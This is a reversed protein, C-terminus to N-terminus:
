SKTDTYGYSGHIYEGVLHGNWPKYIPSVVQSSPHEELHNNSHLLGVLRSVDCNVFDLHWLLCCNSDCGRSYLYEKTLLSKEHSGDQLSWTLAAFTHFKHASKKPANNPNTIYHGSTLAWTTKFTNEVIRPREVGIKMCSRNDYYGMPGMFMHINVQM